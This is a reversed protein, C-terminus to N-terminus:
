LEALLSSSSSRKERLERSVVDALVKKLPSQKLEDPNAFRLGSYYILRGTGERRLLRCRTVDCVLSIREGQWQFDLRVKKGSPLPYDHEARIGSLSLDLIQLPGYAMNGSVPQKFKIRQLGRREKLPNM